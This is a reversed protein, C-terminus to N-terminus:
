ERNLSRQVAVEYGLLVDVIEDDSMSPNIYDRVTKHLTDHRTTQEDSADLLLPYKAFWERLALQIILSRNLGNRQQYQKLFNIVYEPLTIDVRPSRRYAM